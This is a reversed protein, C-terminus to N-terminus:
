PRQVIPVEAATDPNLDHNPDVLYGAPFTVRIPWGAVDLCLLHNNDGDGVDALAWPAVIQEQGDQQLVTVQYLLREQEGAEDGNPKMVGGAWVVRVAQTTGQPCGSGTGWPGGARGLVWQTPTVAEALILTPGPALPTVAIHANKYNLTHNLSLINGVIEVQVPPDATASGFEGVLLVTRLEGVDVAPLLTVCVPQAATGAQSVVRFDAAQVTRVDLEADFIIPMGDAEAAQPCIRVKAGLPLGNDLGFFASLLQGQALDPADATTDTPTSDAAFLELLDVRQRNNLYITFLALAVALGVLPLLSKLKM